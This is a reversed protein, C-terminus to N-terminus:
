IWRRVRAAYTDFDAGFLSCATLEGIVKLFWGLGCGCDLVRDGKGIDLYELVVRVRRREAMDAENVLMRELKEAETSDTM